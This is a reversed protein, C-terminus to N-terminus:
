FSVVKSAEATWSALETMTSRRVGSVLMGDSIGRADLCTGCAAVEAGKEIVGSLMKAVIYHGMPPKQERIACSIGDGILFMRLHVDPREMMAKALRLANYANETGYAPGNVVFLVNEM